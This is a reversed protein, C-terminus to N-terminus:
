KASELMQSAVSAKVQREDAVEQAARAEIKKERLLRQEPVWRKARFKAIPFTSIALKYHERLLESIEQMPIGQLFWKRISDALGPYQADLKEIKTLDSRM